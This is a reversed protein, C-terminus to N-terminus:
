FEIWPQKIAYREFFSNDTDKTTGTTTKTSIKIELWGTDNIHYVCFAFHRPPFWAFSKKKFKKIKPQAPDWQQTPKGRTTTLPPSKTTTRVPQENHLSRKHLAPELASPSQYNHSMPEHAWYSQNWPELAWAWSKHHVPKAAEHCTPNEWILSQVWTEQM